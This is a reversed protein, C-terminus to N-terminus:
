RRRCWKRQSYSLSCPKRQQQQRVAGTHEGCLAFPPTQREWIGPNRLNRSTTALRRGGQLPHAESGSGEQNTNPPVMSDMPATPAYAKQHQTPKFMSSGRQPKRRHHKSPHNFGAASTKMKLIEGEVRLM